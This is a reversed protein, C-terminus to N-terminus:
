ERVHQRPGNKAIKKECCKAFFVPAPSAANLAQSLHQHSAHRSAFHRFASKGGV